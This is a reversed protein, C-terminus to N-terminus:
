FLIYTIGKFIREKKKKKKVSFYGTIYKEIKMEQLGLYRYYYNLFTVYKLIESKGILNIKSTAWKVEIKCIPFNGDFFIKHVTLNGFPEPKKCCLNRGM